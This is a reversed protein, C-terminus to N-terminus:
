SNVFILELLKNKKKFQQYQKSSISEQNLTSLPGVIEKNDRIIFNKIPVKNIEYPNVSINCIEKELNFCLNKINATDFLKKDNLEKKVEFFENAKLDL